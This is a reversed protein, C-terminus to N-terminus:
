LRKYKSFGKEVDSIKKEDIYAQKLWFTNLGNTLVAKYGAGNLLSDIQRYHTSMGGLTEIVFCRTTLLNFNIGQLVMLEHGEVDISIFDTEYFDKNTILYSDLTQTTIKQIPAKTNIHNQLVAKNVDDETQIITSYAGDIRIDFTQEEASVGGNICIINRNFYHLAKLKSFINNVPEFCIGKAGQLAFLFSNSGTIGNNAGIDIFKEVTNLLLKVVIDEQLQGYSPEPFLKHKWYM